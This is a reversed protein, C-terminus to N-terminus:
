VVVKKNLIKRISDEFSDEYDIRARAMYRYGNKIAGRFTGYIPHRYKTYRTGTGYEIFHRYTQRKGSSSMAKRIKEDSPFIHASMGNFYKKISISRKLAGTKVPVYEKARKQIKKAYEDIKKRVDDHLKVDFKSIKNITDSIGDVSIVINGEYRDGPVYPM